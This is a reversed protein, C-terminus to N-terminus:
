NKISAVIFGDNAMSEWRNMLFAYAPFLCCYLGFGYMFSPFDLMLNPPKGIKWWKDVYMFIYAYIQPPGPVSCLTKHINLMSDVVSSYGIGKKNYVISSLIFMAVFDWSVTLFAASFWFKRFVKGKLFPFPLCFSFCIM